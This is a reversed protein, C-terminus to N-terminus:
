LGRVAMAASEVEHNDLEHSCENGPQRRSRVFSRRHPRARAQNRRGGKMVPHTLASTYIPYTHEPPRAIKKDEHEGPSEVRPGPAATRQPHM